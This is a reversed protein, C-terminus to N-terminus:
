GAKAPLYQGKKILGLDECKDRMDSFRCANLDAICQIMRRESLGRNKWLQKIEKDSMRMKFM